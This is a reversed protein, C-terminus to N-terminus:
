ATANAIKALSRPAAKRRAASTPTASRTANVASRRRPMAGPRRTKTASEIRSKEICNLTEGSGATLALTPPWPARIALAIVSRRASACACAWVRVTSAGDRRQRTRSRTSRMRSRCRPSPGGGSKWRMWFSGSAGSTRTVSAVMETRRSSDLQSLAVARRGPGRGAGNLAMTPASTEIMMTPM